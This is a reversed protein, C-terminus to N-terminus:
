HDWELSVEGFNARRRLSNNSASKPKALVTLQM